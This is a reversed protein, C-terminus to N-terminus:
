SDEEVVSNSLERELNILASSEELASALWPERGCLPRFAM